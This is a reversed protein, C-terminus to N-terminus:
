IKNKIIMNNGFRTLFYKSGAKDNTGSIGFGGFPQNGVVSGTSKDNIYMNGVSGMFYKNIYNEYNGETFVAGTLRYNNATKTCHIVTEDLNDLNYPHIVLIPGFVEKEWIRSKLNNEYIITPNVYYGTSDYCEGGYIITDYNKEIHTKCENYSRSNIVSSTFIYDDEPSGIKLVSMKNELIRRFDHYINNPLYIRSTASCKQGSYEFAGRITSEVVWELNEVDPFIFHYNMGGTEGIVRPYFTYEDMRSYIKKIINSFVSSSGTFVTGGMKKSEIMNDIFISPDSPIFQIVEPPMGAELMIEYILYNSLVSGDSPKWITSNGMLLPATALNGGIATFNFPTIAGVFGDLGCWTSINIENNGSIPQEDELQQRFMANFRFFDALECVSDIEAQYITKGQGLMTAALLRDRYQNAVLDGAKWFIDIRKQLPIDNWIKKGRSSSDIAKKLEYNGALPYSACINKHDYPIIQNKYVNDMSYHSAEGNIVLPISLVNNRFNDIQKKVINPIKDIYNFTIPENLAEKPKIFGSISSVRGYASRFM